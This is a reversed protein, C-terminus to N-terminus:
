YDDDSHGNKIRQGIEAECKRFANYANETVEEEETIANNIYKKLDIYSEMLRRTNYLTKKKEARKEEIRVEAFARRVAIRIAETMEQQPEESKQM